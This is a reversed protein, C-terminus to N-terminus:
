PACLLGHAPPEPSFPLPPPLHCYDAAHLVVSVRDCRCGLSLSEIREGVQRLVGPNFRVTGAWGKASDLTDAYSFGGPFVVGRFPQAGGNLEIRGAVLDSMTVDWVDFGALHLAASMERDGNSGEERLVAVRHRPRDGTSPRLPSAPAVPEYTLKYPPARRSALGAQEEAVCEPACQRRELAFSTAEWTDRLGTMTASLAEVGNVAVRVSDARVPRGVATAPVDAVRCAELVAAADGGERVELLWGLEEAFLVALPDVTLDPVPFNLDLGCNGAFAMELAAALRGGDSIDHLALLRRAALQAQIVGFARVLLAPDDCDPVQYPSSPPPSPCPPECEDYACAKEDARM